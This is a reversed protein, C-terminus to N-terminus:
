GKVGVLDVVFVLTENALIPGQAHNQYGLRPPIVIERRGGVRMGVLGQAFGKIVGNLPFTTPRRATWTTATFDKGTRYNAGVYKVEVVSSATATAGTGRVLNRVLLKTPPKGRGAHVVPEVSLDKAHGVAPLGGRRLATRRAHRDGHRRAHGKERAKHVHGAALPAAGAPAAGLVGFSGAACVAAVLAFGAVRAKAAGAGRRRM